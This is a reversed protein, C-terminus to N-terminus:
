RLLDEHGAIPSIGAVCQYGGQCFAATTTLGVLRGAVYVGSGSNGFETFMRVHYQKSTQPQVTGCQYSWTPWASSQCAIDGVTPAPGVTIPEVFEALEGPATTEVQALDAEVARRTVVAFREKGNGTDITLSLQLADEPCSVVHNATVVRSSTTVFGSGIYRALMPKGKVVSGCMLYIRVTANHEQLPVLPPPRVGACSVCTALAVTAMILCLIGALALRERRALPRDPHLTTM